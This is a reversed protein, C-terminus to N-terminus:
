AQRSSSILSGVDYEVHRPDGSLASDPIPGLRVSFYGDLIPVNPVTQDFVATGGSDTDFLRFSVSELGNTPSGQADVVRGSHTVYQPSGALALTTLLTFM